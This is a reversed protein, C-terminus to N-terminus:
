QPRQPDLQLRGGSDSRVQDALQDRGVFALARSIEEAAKEAGTSTLRFEYTV